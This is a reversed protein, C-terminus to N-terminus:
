CVICAHLGAPSVPLETGEVVRPEPRQTGALESLSWHDAVVDTHSHDTYTKAAPVTCINNLRTLGPGSGSRGATSEQVAGHANLSSRCLAHNSRTGLCVRQSPDCGARWRIVVHQEEPGEVPILATCKQLCQVGRGLESTEGQCHSFPEVLVHKM